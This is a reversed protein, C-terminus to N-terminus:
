VNKMKLFWFHQSILEGLEVLCPHHGIPNSFLACGLQAAWRWDNMGARTNYIRNNKGIFCLYMTCQVNYLSHKQRNLVHANYMRYVVIRAGDLGHVIYM